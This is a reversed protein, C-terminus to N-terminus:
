EFLYRIGFQGQWRSGFNTTWPDRDVFNYGQQQGPSPGTTRNNIVALISYAQNGVSYQRGWDNNILNTLNFIDFTLQLTHRKSGTMVYFDQTLRADVVHEWPTNSGNRESYGGRRKSLYDDNAIFNEFLASQQAATQLIATNAANVQDVFKIQSPDTTIYLLDNGFRFDANLDGNVLFTFPTGSRGTYFLGLSTRFHKAYAISYSVVAIIRHNQLYNSNALGANNPDGVVQVFEWQSLATSSAGSNVDTAGMHNYSLQTFLNKTTKSLTFGINYTYGKSTNTMYIANTISSNISRPNPFAARTDAGNNFVTNVFATPAVLNIDQYFVNNLTKSYIGEITLNFGAPLKYDAALNLRMVQPLKFDKDMLNVEATNLVPLVESQLNVDSVFGNGNNVTFPPETPTLNDSQSITTFLLGTNAFQNSIWVFPLRGTFIGIGGRFILRKNGEVDYNFGVRPSWLLQGGPNNSTKFDPGFTSEVIPNNEPTTSIVPVDVRLGATLRFQPNFQIEDQIYFGLQAAKFKASPRPDVDKNTAFTADFRAPFDNFWDTLNNFRWRGNLNNIFLNRFDFFENHTGITFTHKGKFIKLNDSVEIIDQDLENAASSRDTGLQITGSVNHTIEISPFLQGYPTRFDRIRHLGLILNNSYTSNFNSRLEAVTINQNNEIRYANNGFRFLTGSRSINDDYAKIYNHRLTLRHKPSINWDIRGFLKDSQTEADFAGIAGVDYQYRTLLDTALQQAEALTLLAGADGANLITPATRRALEGNVFIFLKNKVIPAGIRFGYQENSFNASKVGSEPDDGITNENSIFYYVSGEVNNTGSRTVANIGGGTFNGYSVDYPALVVQLEQIADLSIPTTAATGGPTGSGVLGFVDNNVAGDITINNFRNNNGGFSNGSAQPSLRTYDTLSRSLTPLAAIQEKNISVSAGTKKRSSLTSGTGTVVVTSLTEGVASMDADVLSNEGLPFNLGSRTFSTFGVYSIEITYPGGPILNAINFVGSTRSITVYDTGTPVHTVKVSAGILPDGNASRVTGSVSGTTVQADITAAILSVIALFLIRKLMSKYKVINLHM